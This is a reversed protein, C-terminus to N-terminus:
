TFLITQVRAFFKMLHGQLFRQLFRNKKPEQSSYIIITQLCKCLIGANALRLVILSLGYLAFISREDLLICIATRSVSEEVNVRSPM